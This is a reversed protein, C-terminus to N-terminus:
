RLLWWVALALAVLLVALLPLVLRLVDRSSPTGRLPGLVDPRRPSRRHSPSRVVALRDPAATRLTTSRRDGPHTAPRPTGPGAAPDTASLPTGCTWCFRDGPRLATRCTACPTPGPTTPM